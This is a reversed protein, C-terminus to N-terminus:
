GRTRQQLKLIWPLAASGWRILKRPGLVMLLGGAAATALPHLRVFSLLREPLPAADVHPTQTSRLALAQAKAAARAKIRARQKAIRSLVLKQEATAEDWLLADMGAPKVPELETSRSDPSISNM